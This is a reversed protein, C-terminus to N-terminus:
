FYLNKALNNTNNIKKIIKGIYCGGIYYERYIDSNTSISNKILTTADQEICVIKGIKFGFDSRHILVIDEVKFKM